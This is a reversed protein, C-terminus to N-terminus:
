AVPQFVVSDIIAEQYFGLSIFIFVGPGHMNIQLM